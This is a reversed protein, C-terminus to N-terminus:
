GEEIEVEDDVVSVTGEPPQPSTLAIDRTEIISGQNIPNCVEDRWGGYPFNDVATGEFLERDLVGFDEAYIAEGEGLPKTTSSGFRGQEHIPDFALQMDIFNPYILPEADPAVKSFGHEIKPTMSLSSVAGLIGDEKATGDAFKVSRAILNAFKIRVLPAQSITLANGSSAYKPYLFQFFKNIKDMTCGIEREQGKKSIVNPITFSLGISRQTNQFTYIPDMRGYVSEKNWNSNFSDNYSTIFARFEIEQDMIYSYFKLVGGSKEVDGNLLEVGPAAPDNSIDFM